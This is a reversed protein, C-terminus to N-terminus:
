FSHNEFEYFCKVKGSIIYLIAKIIHFVQIKSSIYFESVSTNQLLISGQFGLEQLLIHIKYTSKLLAPNKEIHLM